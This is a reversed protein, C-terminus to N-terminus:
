SLATPHVPFLEADLLFESPRGSVLRDIFLAIGAAGYGWDCSMKTHSSSPFAIGEPREIRSVAIGEFAKMAAARYRVDGTLRFADLHAGGIGALGQQKGPLYTYKRDTEIFIEEYLDQYVKLGTAAGYRLVAAGIGAAGYEWYPSVMTEFGRRYHWSAGGDRTTQKQAIEFDLARRGLALFRSQDTALALYLLFLAIGSGGHYLGYHIAGQATGDETWYPLGDSDERACAALQDAAHIAGALFQEDHTALFFRLNTLGWGAQGAFLSPSIDLLPHAASSRLLRQAERTMGLEELAWAIGAQGIGLGPAFRDAEPLRESLWDTLGQPIPRELRHLAALTGAAGYALSLRNTRFVRFDSPFLRDDRGPTATAVIYDLVRDRVASLSQRTPDDAQVRRSPPEIRPNAAMVDRFRALTTRQSPEEAFAAGVAEAVASPLRADRCIGTAIATGRSRDLEFVASLPFVQSLMLAGFSFFDAEITGVRHHLKEFARFGPTGLDTPEDVGTEIAAEFDILKVGRNATVMVNAPSLDLMLVGREHVRQLAEAAASFLRRFDDYWTAWEGEGARTRLMITEVATLASLNVGEIFEEVLFEHEWDVFYDVPEPTVGTGSLKQLIRYERRLSGRADCADSTWSVLPRAEKVLVKAGTFRDRATFVGGSNTFTLADEIKYRGDKLTGPEGDDPVEDPPFPDRAWIPPSFYPTREDVVESGDPGDIVGVSTGDCRLRQLPMITGYRYYLVQSDKYRRDSLIYPGALGATALNLEEMLVVFMDDSHPYITIFKGAGGRQWTKSLSFRLFERDATFKFSAEHTRLVPLAAELISGANAPTASLHIKWGHRRCPDTPSVCHYWMGSRQRRWALPLERTAYAIFDDNKVPKHGPPEFFEGGTLQEIIHPRTRM